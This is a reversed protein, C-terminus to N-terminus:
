SARDLYPDEHVDLGIGHGTRHIFRDGFGGDTIIERAVQDVAQAEAGPRVSAIAARQAEELVAYAEAVEPAPEGVAFMRTTDSAYGDSRGGFDIVVVDGPEIVRDGPDHHPSAANPGSAVIAFDASALGEALTLDRVMRALDRERTGSFRMRYGTLYPLDSGTSLLMAAIGRRAM